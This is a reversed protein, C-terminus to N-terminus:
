NADELRNILSVPKSIRRELPSGGGRAGRFSRPRTPRHHNDFSPLTQETSDTFRSLLPLRTDNMTDNMTDNQVPQQNSQASVDGYYSSGRPIYQRHTTLYRNNRSQPDYAYSNSNYNPRYSSGGYSNRPKESELRLALPTLRPEASPSRRYHATRSWDVNPQQYSSTDHDDQRSAPSDDRYRRPPPAVISDDDRQRKRGAIPVDAPSLSRHDESQNPQPSLARTYEVGGSRRIDRSYDNHSSRPPSYHDSIRPPPGRTRVPPLRNQSSASPRRPPPFHDPDKQPLQKQPRNATQDDVMAVSDTWGDTVAADPGMRPSASRSVNNSQSARTMADACTLEQENNALPPVNRRVAATRVKEKSPISSNALSLSDLQTVAREPLQALSGSPPMIQASAPLESNLSTEVVTTSPVGNTQKFNPLKPELKAPPDADTTVVPPTPMTLIPVDDPSELKPKKMSEVQNASSTRHMQNENTQSLPKRRSRESPQDVSGSFPKYGNVDSAGTGYSIGNADMYPRLNARQAEVSVPLIQSPPIVSLSRAEPDGSHINKEAYIDEFGNSSTSPSHHIHASPVSSIGKNLPMLPSLSPLKLPGNNRVGDGSKRDVKHVHSSLGLTSNDSPLKDTPPPISSTLQHSKAGGQMSTSSQPITSISSVNVSSSSEDLRIISGSLTRQQMSTRPSTTLLTQKSVMNGFDPHNPGSPASAQHTPTPPLPAHQSLPTRNDITSTPISQKEKAKDLISAVTDPSVPPQQAEVALRKMRELIVKERRKAETEALLAKAKEIEQRKLIEKHRLEKRKVEQEALLRAEKQAEAAQAKKKEEAAIRVQNDQAQKQNRLFQAIESEHQQRQLELAEKERRSREEKEAKLREARLKELEAARAEVESQAEPRQREVEVEAEHPKCLEEEALRKREASQECHQNWARTAADAEEEITMVGAEHIGTQMGSFANHTNLNHSQKNASFANSGRGLQLALNKKRREIKDEELQRLHKSEYADRQCVWEALLSLDDKLAKVTANYEWEGGSGIGQGSRIQEVASLALDARNQITTAVNLCEQAAVMSDHALLSAQQALTHACHATALIETCQDKASQAAALANATSIPNFNSLSSSLRSQLTRLAMLSHVDEGSSFPTPVRSTSSSTQLLPPSLRAKTESTSSVIPFHVEDSVSTAGQETARTAQEQMNTSIMNQPLHLEKELRHNQLFGTRSITPPTNQTSRTDIPSTIQLPDAMTVDVADSREIVPSELLSLRDQLSPRKQGDSEPLPPTQISQDPSFSSPSLIGSDHEYYTDPDPASIRKLLEPQQGITNFQFDAFVLPPNRTSFSNSPSLNSAM